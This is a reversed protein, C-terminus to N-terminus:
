DGTLALVASVATATDLRFYGDKTKKHVQKSMEASAAATTTYAVGVLRSQGITGWRGNHVQLQYTGNTNKAIRVGWFKDTNTSADTKRLYQWDGISRSPQSKPPPSDLPKITPKVIAAMEGVERVPAQLWREGGLQAIGARANAERDEPLCAVSVVEEFACTSAYLNSPHWGEKLLMLGLAGPKRFSLWEEDLNRWERVKTPRQFFSVFKWELKNGFAPCSGEGAYKSSIGDRFYEVSPLVSDPHKEIWVLYRGRMDPVFIISDLEPLLIKLEIFEGIAEALTKHRRDIGGQNDYVVVQYGVSKYEQVKERAGVLLEQNGASPFKERKGNVQKSQRIANCPLILLKSNNM